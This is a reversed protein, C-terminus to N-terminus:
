KDYKVRQLTEDSIIKDDDLRRFFVCIKADLNTSIRKLIRKYCYYNPGHDIESVKKM